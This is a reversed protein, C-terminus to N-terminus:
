AASRPRAAYALICRAHEHHGEGPAECTIPFRAGKSELIETLMAKPLRKAERKSISMCTMLGAAYIRDTPEGSEDVIPADQHLMLSFSTGSPQSKILRVAEAVTCYHVTEQRTTM